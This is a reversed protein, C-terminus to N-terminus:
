IIILLGKLVDWQLKCYDLIRLLSGRFDLLWRIFYSYARDNQFTSTTENKPLCCQKWNNQKLKKLCLKSWVTLCYLVTTPTMMTAISPFSKKKGINFCIIHYLWEYVTPCSPRYFVPYGIALLTPPWIWLGARFLVDTNRTDWLCM